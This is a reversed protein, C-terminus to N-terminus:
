SFCKANGFLVNYTFPRLKVEPSPNNKCKLMTIEGVDVKLYNIHNMINSEALRQRNAELRERNEEQWENAQGAAIRVRQAVLM